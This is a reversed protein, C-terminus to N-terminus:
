GNAAPAARLAFPLSQRRVLCRVCVAKTEAVQKLSKGASSIPRAV